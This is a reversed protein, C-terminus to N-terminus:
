VPWGILKSSRMGGARCSLRPFLSKAIRPQYPGTGRGDGGAPRRRRQIGSGLASGQKRETPRGVSTGDPAGSPRPFRAVGSSRKRRELTRRAQKREAVWRNDM